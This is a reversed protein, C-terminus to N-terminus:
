CTLILATAFLGIGYASHTLLSLWRAKWPSPPNSAAVGFGLCPQIICFPFVLTVVATLLAPAITPESLWIRGFIIVHIIAFIIGILYHLVWGLLQEGKVSPTAMIPRHIWQGKFIFIVWRGVFGYNLSPTCFVNRQLWSWADMIFTAGIGLLSAQLWMSMEM